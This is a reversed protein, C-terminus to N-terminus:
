FLIVGREARRIEMKKEFSIKSDKDIGMKKMLPSTQSSISKRPMVLLPEKVNVAM